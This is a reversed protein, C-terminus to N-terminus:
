TFLNYLTKACRYDRFSSISVMVTTDNKTWSDTKPPYPQPVGAEDEEDFSVWRGNMFVASKGWPVVPPAAPAAPADDAFVLLCPLLTSLLFTTAVVLLLPARPPPSPKARRMTTIAKYTIYPTHTHTFIFTYSQHQTRGYQISQSAPANIIIIISSLLSSSIHLFPPVNTGACKQRTPQAEQQNMSARM